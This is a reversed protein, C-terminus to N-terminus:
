SQVEASSRRLDAHSIALAHSTWLVGSGSFLETLPTQVLGKRAKLGQGLPPFGQRGQEMENVLCFALTRERGESVCLALFEPALVPDKFLSVCPAAMPCSRLVWLVLPQHGGRAEDLLATRLPQLMQIGARCSCPLRALFSMAGRREGRCRFNDEFVGCAFPHQM